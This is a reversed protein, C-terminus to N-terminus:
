VCQCPHFSTFFFFVCVCVRQTNKNISISVVDVHKCRALAIGTTTWALNTTAQRGFPLGSELILAIKKM